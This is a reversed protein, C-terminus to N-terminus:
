GEGAKGKEEGMDMRIQELGSKDEKDWGEILIVHGNRQHLVVKKEEGLVMWDVLHQSLSVVWSNGQRYVKRITPM